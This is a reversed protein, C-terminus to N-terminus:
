SSSNGSSSSTSSTRVMRPAGRGPTVLEVKINATATVKTNQHEGGHHHTEVTVEPQLVISQLEPAQHNGYNVNLNSKEHISPISSASSKWSQPEETITTLSPENNVNVNNHKHHHHSKSCNRSSSRKNNLIFAKNSIKNIRKPPPSPTSIRNAYQLPIIEAGPGVLSLLIPFFLLGNVAGIVLVSLLLWFFHRVVFEFSSTSLMLVALISTMVAHIVPALSHELALKIRRDRNGIATIFGQQSYLFLYPIMGNM